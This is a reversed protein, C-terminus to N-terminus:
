SSGNVSLAGGADCVMSMESNLLRHALPTGPFDRAPTLPRRLDVRKAKATRRLKRGVRTPPLAACAAAFASM